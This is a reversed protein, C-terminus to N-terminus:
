ELSSFYDRVIEKMGPPIPYTEIVTAAEDKYYQLVENYPVMYGKELPVGRANYWISNGSNSVNGEVISAESDGGLREPVYVMEYDKFKKEGTSGSSGPETGSTGNASNSANGNTIGDTDGNANGNTNPNMNGNANNNSSGTSGQNGTNSDSNNGSINDSSMSNGNMRNSSMNNGDMNNGNGSNEKRDGDKGSDDEGGDEISGSDSRSDEGSEDMEGGDKGGDRGSGEIRGGPGANGPKELWAFGVDSSGAADEIRKRAEDITAILDDLAEAFNEKSEYKGENGNVEEKENEGAEVSQAEEKLEELKNRAMALAKVADEENRAKKLQKLLKEIEGAVKEKEDTKQDMIEKMIEDSKEDIKREQEEIEKLTNELVVAEGKAGSPIAFTVAVIFALGLSIAFERVPLRVPYLKRFDTKELINVTDQMQLRSLPSNDNSCYYATVLREDLGLSDGTKLTYLLGPRLVLSIAFSSGCLVLYFLALKRFLFPVPTFLAIVALVLSLCGAIILSMALIKFARNLHIRRRLPAIAKVIEKINESSKINKEDIMNKIINKLKINKNVINKMNKLKLKDLIKIIEIMM